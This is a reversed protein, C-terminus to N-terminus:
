QGSPQPVVVIFMTPREAAKGKLRELLGAEGVTQNALVLTVEFPLAEQELDVVLHEVPLGTAERIREVLDRRLWGSATRPLTSVIVEDPRYLAIGDMAATYPDEDGVDGEVSIGEQAMFQRALSLRVEAANRVAEDYIVGGHRPRNQPVVLAFRTDGEAAKARIREILASGGVTQNAVVLVTRM